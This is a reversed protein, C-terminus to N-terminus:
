ASAICQIAGAFPRAQRRIQIGATSRHSFSERAFAGMMPYGHLHFLVGAVRAL